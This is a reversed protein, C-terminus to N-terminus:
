KYFCLVKGSFSSHAPNFTPSMSRGTIPTICGFRDSITLSIIGVTFCKKAVDWWSKPSAMAVWYDDVLLQLWKCLSWNFYSWASNRSILCLFWGILEVNWIKCCHFDLATCFQESANYILFLILWNCTNAALTDSQIM